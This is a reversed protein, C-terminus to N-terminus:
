SIALAYKLRCTPSYFLVGGRVNNYVTVVQRSSQWCDVRRGGVARTRYVAHTDSCTIGKKNSKDEMERPFEPGIAGGVEMITCIPDGSALSSRRAHKSSRNVLLLEPLTYNPRSLQCHCRCAPKSISIGERITSEARARHGIDNGANSCPDEPKSRKHPSPQEIADIYTKNRDSRKAHVWLRAVVVLGPDLHSIRDIM